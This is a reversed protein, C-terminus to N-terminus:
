PLYNFAIDVNGTAATDDTSIFVKIYTRADSPIPLRAIEEGINWTRSSAGMTRKFSVPLATFSIGDASDEVRISISKNANLVVNQAASMMIEASGLASANKSVGQNGVSETNKPVAQNKALYEDHVRLTHGYM